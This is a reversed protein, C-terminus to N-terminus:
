KALSSLTFRGVKSFLHDVEANDVYERQHGLYRIQRTIFSHITNLFRQRRMM